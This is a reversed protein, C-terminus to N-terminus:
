RLLYLFLLCHVQTAHNIKLTKRGKKRKKKFSCQRKKLINNKLFRPITTIYIVHIYTKIKLM